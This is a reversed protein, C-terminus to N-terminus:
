KLVLFASFDNAAHRSVIAFKHRLGPVRNVFPRLRNVCTRDGKTLLGESGKILEKKRESLLVKLHV